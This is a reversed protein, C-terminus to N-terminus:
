LYSLALAGIMLHLTNDVIIMLWVSLFTPVDDAYGTATVKGRAGEKLWIVYRALRFRDILFHSGAILWMAQWSADRFFLFTALSYVLAHVFAWYTSSTKKQAMENPQFFYDGLMHALLLLPFM